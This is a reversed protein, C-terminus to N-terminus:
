IDILDFRVGFVVGRFVVLCISMSQVIVCMVLGMISGGIM